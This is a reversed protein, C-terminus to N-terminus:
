HPIPLLRAQIAGVVVVFLVGTSLGRVSQGLRGAIYVLDAYNAEGRHERSQRNGVAFRDGVEREVLEREERKVAVEAPDADRSQPIDAVNRVARADQKRVRDLVAQALVVRFFTPFSGRSPEYNAASKYLAEAALSEVDVCGSMGRREHRRIAQPLLHLHDRVLQWQDASQPLRPKRNPRSALNGTVEAVSPAFREAHQQTVM